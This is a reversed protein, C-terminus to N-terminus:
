NTKKTRRLRPTAWAANTMTQGHPSSNYVGVTIQPKTWIYPLSSSQGQFFHSLSLRSISHRAMTQSGLCADGHNRVEPVEPVLSDRLKWWIWPSWGPPFPKHCIGADRTGLVHLNVEERSLASLSEPREPLLEVQFAGHFYTTKAAAPLKPNRNLKYIYINLIYTDIEQKPRGRLHGMTWEPYVSGLIEPVVSVKWPWNSFWRGCDM